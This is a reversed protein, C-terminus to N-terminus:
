TLDATVSATLNSAAYNVRISNGGPRDLTVNFVLNTTGSNGEVVAADSISVVPLPDFNDVITGIGAGSTQANTPNSLNLFFTENPENILDDLVTVTITQNSVGPPFTL